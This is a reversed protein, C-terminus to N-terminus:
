QLTLKGTYPEIRISVTDIGDTVTITEVDTLGVPEGLSNFTVEGGASVTLSPNIKRLDRSLGDGYTYSYATVFNVSLPRNKNMAELQTFTIDSAVVGAALSGGISSSLFRPLVVAALVGTIIIVMLIEFFTFGSERYRGGNCM